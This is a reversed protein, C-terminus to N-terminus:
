SEVEEAPPRPRRMRTWYWKTYCAWAEAEQASTIQPVDRRPPRKCPVKPRLPGGSRLDYREVM